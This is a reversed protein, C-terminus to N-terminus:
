GVQKPPHLPRQTELFHRSPNPAPIYCCLLLLSIQTIWHLYMHLVKNPLPYLLPWPQPICLPDESSPILCPFPSPAAPYSTFLQLSGVRKGPGYPRHTGLSYWSINPDPIFCHIPPPSSRHNVSSPTSLPFDCCTTQQLAPFLVKPPQIQLLQPFLLSSGAGVLKGPQLESCGNMGLSCKKLNSLEM